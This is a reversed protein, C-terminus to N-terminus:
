LKDVRMFVEFYKARNMDSWHIQNYRYQFTQTQCVVILMLILTVLSRQQIKNKAYQLAFALLVMFLPIYEVYVRSSFSGGYWWNSWSSFVYTILFFFALWSWFMFRNNKWLYICGLFSLLYIPTYLFLGKRFSFLIEFFHPKMFNFGEGLYSYIFFSGTASKYYFLQLSIVGLFIFTGAILFKMPKFLRQIGQYFIAKSGAAFPFIFVILGNVPRILVILGLLVSLTLMNVSRLTQYYQRTYYFFMSIFAFSYVHSMGPESISYYFLNTGFVATLLTIARIKDSIQFSKLSRNIFILGALLWFLAAINVLIIYFKSYGDPDNNTAISLGHAILFFPLQVLATGMYYKSIYSGDVFARYDYFINENYYKEKEIEDFFSFNLDNYIFIAPLYAYYGKADSELINKWREGGWNINSSIILMLVLVVGIAASSYSYKLKM